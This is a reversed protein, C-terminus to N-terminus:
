FLIDQPLLSSSTSNTTAGLRDHAAQDNILREFADPPVAPSFLYGQAFDCHMQVLFARQAETEVGEAIVKFGLKHAMLIITEVIVRDESDADINQVFSRDIKLYDVAFKRLYSLSSYGTGFDDIAVEIGASRYKALREAIDPNANLLLGETIEVAMCSGGLSAENLHEPWREAASSSAFQAPSKNVSIQFGRGLRQSWRRSCQVAEKFVWDGIEDILGYEEAIPIFDCPPIDGRSPHKWRLLAEAKVIAGSALDLIPQYHVELQGEGLARRLDNSLWLRTELAAQMSADYYCFQNRGARKAVYMALDSKKVLSEAETADTPFCAIGLSASLYAQESGIRFPAALRGLIQGAVRETRDPRIGPLILTFEDGSLRCVTDTNRICERIRNAAEVLVADGADHGFTDNVEKFRDLDIFVLALGSGTRGSKVLELNLRERFQLRNPLGTLADFHAQRWVLDDSRKKETIDQLVGALRNPKAGEWSVIRGRFSAYLWGGQFTAFRLETELESRQDRVNEFFQERCRELDEPHIHQDWRFSPAENPPYGLTTWWKADVYPIRMELDWDFLSTNAASLALKLQEESERLKDQVRRQQTIDNLTGTIGQIAGNTDRMLTAFVEFWLVDGNATGFSSQFRCVDESGKVLPLFHNAYKERDDGALFSFLPKGVSGPVAFGMAREWAANLYSFTGDTSTQFVVERLNDLIRETRTENKVLAARAEERQKVLMEVQESLHLVDDDAGEASNGVKLHRLANQLSLLAQLQRTAETRLRDNAAMLEESSIELSRTRLLLDRDYDEYSQQVVGLMKSLNDAFAASGSTPLELMLARLEEHRTVGFARRLQRVL